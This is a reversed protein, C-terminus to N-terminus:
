KFDPSFKQRVSSAAPFDVHEVKADKYRKQVAEKLENLHDLDRTEVVVKTEVGFVDLKVWAREQNVHKISAGCEAIISFLEALGGPRDSINVYIKAMRSDAALGREIVRNLVTSDINGGTLVIVVNKGYLEDVHGALVAAVGVAGAGEIICKEFELLRLIAVAIDEEKVQM